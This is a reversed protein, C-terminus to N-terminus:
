VCGPVEELSGNTNRVANNLTPAFVGQFLIGCLVRFQVPVSVNAPATWTYTVADMSALDSQQCAGVDGDTLIIGDAPAMIGASAWFKTAFLGGPTVTVQYTACPAYSTPLGAVVCQGPQPSSFQNNPVGM